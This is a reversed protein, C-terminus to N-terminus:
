QKEYRKNFFYYRNYYTSTITLNDNLADYFCYAGDGGSIMNDLDIPSNFTYLTGNDQLGGM